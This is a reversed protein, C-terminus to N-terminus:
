TSIYLRSGSLRSGSRAIGSVGFDGAADTVPAELRELEPPDSPGGAHALVAFGLALALFATLVTRVRM